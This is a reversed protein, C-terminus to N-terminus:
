APASFGSLGAAFIGAAFTHRISRIPKVHMIIDGTETKPFGRKILPAAKSPLAGARIM